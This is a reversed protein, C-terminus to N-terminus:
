SVGNVVHGPEGCVINLHVYDSPSCVRHSQVLTCCYRM